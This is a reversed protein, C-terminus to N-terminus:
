SPRADDGVKRSLELTVLRLESTYREGQDDPLWAQELNPLMETLTVPKHPADAAASQRVAKAFINICHPSDLDLFFPKVEAPAKVFVFRPLGISKAWRRVALFRPADTKEQICEIQEPEFSWSERSVVLRDVAIRPNHAAPKLLKFSNVIKQAAADCLVEEISFRLKGDRTKVILGGDDELLLSGIPLVQSRPARSPEAALELHYDAPTIFMPMARSTKSRFNKPIIPILRRGRDRAAAQCLEDPSPHQMVFLQTNLTNLGVHLEGLVFHYDGQAIAEPGDAAIMVDPSNYRISKWGSHPVKFTATVRPWLQETTYQVHRADEPLALLRRWKEQFEAEILLSFESEEQWFLPFVAYWFSLLPVARSGLRRTLEAYAQAFAEDYKQSIQYTLWRASTLMLSLPPGLTELLAPGFRLEIDRRCDEYLLTRGAYTQGSLQTAAGGTLRTFSSELREFACDLQEVHGRSRAIEDRAEEIEALAALARRSLTPEDIRELAQRLAREPFAGVPVELNWVLLGREVLREIIKYVEAESQPGPAASVEGAVERATRVGDCAALVAAEPPSLVIPPRLAIHVIRGELHLAHLRRPAVWPLIARDSALARALADIGWVEMFLTRSALLQPGPKVTIPEGERDLRVWGVPGFFGVTDNKTCYRQLYRAVMEENRKQRSARADKEYRHRLLPEIGTHLAARNQWIIAERFRSDGAIDYIHNAIRLTEADFVEAFNAQAAELRRRAAGYAEVEPRRRGDAEPLRGKKLLKLGKQLAPREQLGATELEKAFERIAARQAAPLQEEAALVEDGAAASKQSSIGLVQRAPFGAGRLCVWRWVGWHGGPLAVVHEPVELRPGAGAEEVRGM